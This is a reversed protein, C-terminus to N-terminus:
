RAPIEVRRVCRVGDVELDIQVELPVSSPIKGGPVVFALLFDVTQNAALTPVITAKQIVDSRATERYQRAGAKEIALELGTASLALIAAEPGTFGVPESYGKSPPPNPAPVTVQHEKAWYDHPLSVAALVKQPSLLAAQEGAPVRLTFSEPSLRINSTGSSISVQLINAFAALKRSRDGLVRVVAGEDALRGILLTFQPEDISAFETPTFLRLSEVKYATGSM